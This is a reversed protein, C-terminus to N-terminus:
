PIIKSIPYEVIGSAGSRKLRPIIHKTEQANLITEVAFWGKEYLHSITPNHLSPLVKIVTELNSEEVNCKLGVFSEADLAGQLLMKINELKNRKFDDKVANHNAIIVTCTEMLTDIIKLRNARLSSGTETIDVIADVLRPPKVETAGWSFEVDVSVNKKQFYRKTTEVLETAVRKGALDEAKTFPSDEPVALVWRCKRRTSKSYRLETIEVVDVNNEATWDQGTIGADIIGQEVYRPIEQPRMVILDLECDDSTPYYSRESKGIKIGAKRFLNITSEELSGKPLGLSLKM